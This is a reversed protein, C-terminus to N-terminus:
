KKDIGVPHVGVSDRGPDRAEQGHEWLQQPPCSWNASPTKQIYPGRQRSSSTARCLFTASTWCWSDFGLKRVMRCMKGRPGTWKRWVPHPVIERMQQESLPNPIKHIKCHYKSEEWIEELLNFFHTSETVSETELQPTEPKTHGVPSISLCIFSVFWRKPNGSDQCGFFAEWGAWPDKLNQHFCSLDVLNLFVLLLYNISM